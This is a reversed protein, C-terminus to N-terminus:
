SIEVKLSFESGHIVAWESEYKSIKDNEKVSDVWDIRESVEDKICKRERERCNERVSIKEKM